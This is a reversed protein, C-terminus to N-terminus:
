VIHTCSLVQSVAILFLLHLNNTYTSRRAVEALPTVLPFGVQSGPFFNKSFLSTTGRITLDLTPNPLEYV